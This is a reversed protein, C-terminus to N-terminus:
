KRGAREFDREVIVYAANIEKMRETAEDIDAQSGGRGIVYDPASEVCLKRYASKVAGWSMSLSVGLVEFPTRNRRGPERFFAEADDIGLREKFAGRWERESGLGETAVDYTKYGDMFGRKAKAM